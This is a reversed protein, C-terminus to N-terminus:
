PRPPTTLRYFRTPQFGPDQLTVVRDEGAPLVNSLKFWTGTGLADTFEVSYVKNAPVVFKLSAGGDTTIETIKLYSSRDTPNTGALYEARNSMGDGDADQDADAADAPNMGYNLEWEDPVGDRDADVLAYVPFTAVATSFTNAENTVIVRWNRANVAVTTM